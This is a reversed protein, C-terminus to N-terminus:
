KRFINTASAQATPMVTLENINVHKPRSVAFWITEAIDMAVLPEFGDYVKKARSADGKFRVLSFETEVAGPHVATVKIGHPLLDIRMGKNLADVAHKSACYVNGNAYVEKGAISGLNIIHGYGNKIMWNSVVKTVYLLGKVNTDIMTEWDDYSGSQIPDLGQSLGANNILVNVRKWEPPLEELNSIVDERNRVDFTSVAVAVNYEAKLQKALKELRDTRRGTLILDYRERAFVHACAEGIGATAGTILAIKSM